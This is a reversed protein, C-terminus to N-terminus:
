GYPGLFIATFGAAASALGVGRGAEKAAHAAGSMAQLSVFLAVWPPIVQVYPPYVDM